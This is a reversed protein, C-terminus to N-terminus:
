TATCIYASLDGGTTDFYIKGLVATGPSALNELVLDSAQYGAFDVAGAPAGLEDLHIHDAAVGKHSAAHTAPAGPAAWSPLGAALTLVNTNSGKALVAPTNASSAYIIDGAATLLSKLIVDSAFALQKWTAM